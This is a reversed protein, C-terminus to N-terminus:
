DLSWSVQKSVSTGSDIQQEAYTAPLASMSFTELLAGTIAEHKYYPTPHIQLFWSSRHLFHM